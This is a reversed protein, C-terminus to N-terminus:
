LSGGPDYFNSKIIGESKEKDIPLHFLIEDLQKSSVEWGVAFIGKKFCEQALINGSGLRGLWINKSMVFSIRKINYIKAEFDRFYHFLGSRSALNM